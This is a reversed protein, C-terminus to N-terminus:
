WQFGDVGRSVSNETVSGEYNNSTYYPMLVGAMSQLAQKVSAESAPDFGTPAASVRSYIFISSLVFFQPLQMQTGNKSTKPSFDFAGRAFLSYPISENLDALDM